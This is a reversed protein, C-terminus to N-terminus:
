AASAFTYKHPFTKALWAALEQKSEGNDANLRKIQGTLGRERLQRILSALAEEQCLGIGTPANDLGQVVSAVHVFPCCGPRDNTNRKFEVHLLM